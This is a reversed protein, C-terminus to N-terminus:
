RPSPEFIASSVRSSHPMQQHTYSGAIPSSTVWAAGPVGNRMSGSWQRQGFQSASFPLNM